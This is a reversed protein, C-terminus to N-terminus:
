WKARCLPLHRDSGAMLKKEQFSAECAIQLAKAVHTQGIIHRFSTPQVDRLDSPNDDSM